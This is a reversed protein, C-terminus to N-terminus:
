ALRWCLDALARRFRELHAVYQAESEGALVLSRRLSVTHARRFRPAWTRQDDKLAM